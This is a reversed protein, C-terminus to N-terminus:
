GVHMLLFKLLPLVILGGLALVFARYWGPTGQELTRLEKVFVVECAGNGTDTRVTSTNRWWAVGAPQYNVLLGKLHIQDGVRVGDIARRVADSDTILHNNSLGTGDFATDGAHRYYCTWPGNWFKVSRYDNTGLNAGWLVCVDKTDISDKTHYIDAIANIDNHSVVLGRLEYDAVPKVHYTVGRYPFSFAAMFMENQAPPRYLERQIARYDPLAGKKFYAVGALLACAFFLYTLLRQLTMPLFLCLLL